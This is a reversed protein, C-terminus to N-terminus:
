IRSLPNGTFGMYGQERQARQAHLGGSIDGKVRVLRPPLVLYCSAAAERVKTFVYTDQWGYDRAHQMGMEQVCIDTPCPARIDHATRELHM